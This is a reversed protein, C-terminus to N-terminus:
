MARRVEAVDSSNPAEGADDILDDVGEGQLLLMFIPRKLPV